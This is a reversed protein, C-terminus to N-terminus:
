LSHIANTHQDEGLVILMDSSCLVHDGGPSVNIEGTVSDRLAIINVKYRNRVDVDRITRGLWSHPAAVEIIGYDPSLEIFNLVNSHALTQALKVGMEHEPFVVRDAGIKELVRRHVDSQAKCVVKPIGMEKLSLTVLVSSGLDGVTVVACDFNRVGLSRLVSPDRGDAAVAQTVQDAIAQVKARDIDVALVENDLSSLETAVATGFRGLGIIVYSKKM